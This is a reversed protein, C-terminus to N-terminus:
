DYRRQEQAIRTMEALAGRRRQSRSKRYAMVADFRVRRHKGVKTFPIAGADLLKILHPRSVNLLDAAQQTTLEMHVPVVAVANGQSMEHLVRRIVAYVTGPIEVEEGSPGVLKPKRRAEFIEGLIRVADLEQDKPRVPARPEDLVTATM